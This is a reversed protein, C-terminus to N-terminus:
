AWDTPATTPSTSAGLSRRVQSSIRLTSPRSGMRGPPPATELGISATSFENDANATEATFAADSTRIVFVSVLAFAVIAALVQRSRAPSVFLTSM